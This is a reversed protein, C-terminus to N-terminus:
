VCRRTASTPFRTPNTTQRMTYWRGNGLVVGLANANAQLQETVDFSDYTVTRRYDTPVPALVQDGILEGNIFLEYMGLGSIHVTARKIPKEALTFETRIYRSSLESHSKEKDWPFAGEWGIWRGGWATEGLLGMGWEGMESWASAGQTTYVKVRWYCRQNSQLKKGGYPVWISADSAVVGSDWLDAKGEALLEPESAVQVHYATQMVDREDSSIIWSLRPQAREISLPRAFQEVELWGVEVGAWSLLPAILAAVLIFIRKM